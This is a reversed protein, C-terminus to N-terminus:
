IFELKDVLHEVLISQKVLKVLKLTLHELHELLKLNKKFIFLSVIIAFKHM